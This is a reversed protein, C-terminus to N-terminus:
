PPGAVLYEGREPVVLAALGSLWTGVADLANAVLTRALEVTQREEGGNASRVILSVRETREAKRLAALAQEADITDDFLAVLTFRPTPPSARHADMM